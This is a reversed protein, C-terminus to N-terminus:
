KLFDPVDLDDDRRRRPVEDFIRPVELGQTPPGADPSDASAAAPEGAPAAPASADPIGNSHGSTGPYGGVPLPEAPPQSVGVPEVPARDAPPEVVAPVSAATDAQKP